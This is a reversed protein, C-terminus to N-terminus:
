QRRRSRRGANEPPASQRGFRRRVLRLVFGAIKMVLYRIIM